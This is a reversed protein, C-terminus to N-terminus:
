GEKSIEAPALNVTVTKSPFDLGTCAMAAKIRDKAERIATDPLGTLRFAEQNRGVHAEVAVARPEAGTFAASTTAAYM